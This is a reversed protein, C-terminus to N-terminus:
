SSLEGNMENPGGGPGARGAGVNTTAHTSGHEHVGRTVPPPQAQLALVRHAVPGPCENVGRVPTYAHSHDAFGHTNPGRIIHLM